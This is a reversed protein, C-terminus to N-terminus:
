SIVGCGWRTRSWFHSSWFWGWLFSLKLSISSSSLQNTMMQLLPQLCILRFRYSSSLRWRLTAFKLLIGVFAPQVWTPLVCGLFFSGMRLGSILDAMLLRLLRLFLILLLRFSHISPQWSTLRFIASALSFDQISNRSSSSSSGSVAFTHRVILLRLPFGSVGPGFSARKCLPLSM